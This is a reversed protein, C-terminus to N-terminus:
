DILAMHLTDSRLKVIEFIDKSRIKEDDTLVYNQNYKFNRGTIYNTIPQQKLEDIPKTYDTFDIIKYNNKEDVEFILRQKKTETWVYRLEYPSSYTNKTVGTGRFDLMYNIDNNTTHNKMYEHVFDDPSTITINTNPGFIFDSINNWASRINSEALIWNADFFLSFYNITNKKRLNNTLYRKITLIQEKGSTLPDAPHITWRSEGSLYRCGIPDITITNFIICDFADNMNQAPIMPNLKHPYYPSLITGEGSFGDVNTQTATWCMFAKIGLNDRLWKIQKQNISYALVFKPRYKNDITTFYNTKQNEDFDNITYDQMNIYNSFKTDLHSIYKMMFEFSLNHNMFGFGIGISDGYRDVFFRMMGFVSAIYSESVTNRINTKLAWGIKHEPSSTNIKDRLYMFEAPNIEKDSLDVLIGIVMPINVTKKIDAYQYEVIRGFTEYMSYNKGISSSSWMYDNYTSLVADTWIDYTFFRNATEIGAKRISYYKDYNILIDYMQDCIKKPDSDNLAVCNVGPTLIKSLGPINDILLLGGSGLITFTRENFYGDGIAGHINLNIKSNSFVLRNKEYPIESHYSAPASSKLHNPGYLRFKFRSDKDLENLISYRDVIIKDDRIGSGHKYLNTCIFSVDCAYNKDFEYFHTSPSYGPLLYKSLSVGSATYNKLTAVCTSFSLDFHRVKKLPTMWCHPDDWNFMIFVKEPYNMKIMELNEDTITNWNWFLIIQPSFLSIANDLDIVYNKNENKSRMLGYQMTVYGRNEFCRQVATICNHYQTNKDSEYWCVIIIRKDDFKIIKDFISVFRETKTLM